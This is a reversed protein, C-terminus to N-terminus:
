YLGSHSVSVFLNLHHSLPFHFPANVNGDITNQVSYYPSSLVFLLSVPDSISNSEILLICETSNLETNDKFFSSNQLLDCLM